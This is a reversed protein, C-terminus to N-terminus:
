AVQLAMRILVLDHVGIKETDVLVLRDLDHHRDVHGIGLVTDADLHVAAHHRLNHRFDFDNRQRLVQRFIEFDIGFVQMKAFGQVQGIDLHRFADLDDRQSIELIDLVDFVVVM